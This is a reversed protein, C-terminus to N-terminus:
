LATLTGFLDYNHELLHTSFVIATTRQPAKVAACVNRESVAGSKWDGYEHEYEPTSYSARADRLELLAARDLGEFEKAEFRKRLDFYRRKAQDPRAGDIPGVLCNTLLKAFVKEAARLPAPRAAVYIVHVHPLAEFLPTYHRLFTEFHSATTFGEDVFCFSVGRPSGSSLETESMLFIPYKEVFYRRVSAGSQGYVKAPLRDPSVGCVGNFYGLKEQETALFCEGPHALAFDFGMLKNKITSPQRERRNRNDSQGIAAYLSRAALHYIPDERHYVLAKAHGNNFLRAMLQSLGQKQNPASAGEQMGLFRHYQRPVFHGGHLAAQCVFSAENQDYGFRSLAKVREDNTLAVQSM